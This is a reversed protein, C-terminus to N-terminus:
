QLKSQRQTNGNATFSWMINLGHDATIPLKLWKNETTMHPGSTQQLIHHM